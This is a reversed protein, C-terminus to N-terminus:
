RHSISNFHATALLMWADSWRLYNIRNKFLPWKQYCFRGDKKRFHKITYAMIEYAKERYRDEGTFYLMRSATIIGQAQHHIDVPWRRPWRWLSRGGEFQKDFYFEAGKGVAENVEATEIGSTEAIQLLCDINFGQHFDIQMRESGNDKNLSYPWSGDERQYALSFEMAKKVLELDEENGTVKGLRSLYSAGLLSANHVVNSDIPTYSFCIGHENEFRNLDELIFQRAGLCLELVKEDKTIGYLDLLGNAVFSTNVITPIFPDSFRTLDQWPFNFGWCSCSYGKSRSGVILQLLSESVRNFKKDEMEGSDHLRCAASLILGLAKPNIGKGVGTLPRLNIPSYVYIQTIGLRFFRSPISKLLRSNLADYPDYGGFKRDLLSDLLNGTIEDM